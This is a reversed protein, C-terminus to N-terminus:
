LHGGPSTSCHHRPYWRHHGSSGRPPPRPRDTAPSGRLWFLTRKLRSQNRNRVWRTPRHTRHPCPTNQAPTHVCHSRLWRRCGEPPHPPPTSGYTPSPSIFHERIHPQPQPLAGTHPAPASSTSGYTPSPSLSHERIHSQPQPTSGYSMGLGGPVIVLPVKRHPPPPPPPLNHPNMRM